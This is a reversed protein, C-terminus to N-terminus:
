INLSSAVDAKVTKHLDEIRISNTNPSTPKQPPLFVGLALHSGFVFEVWMHCLAPISGKSCYHSILAKVVRGNKSALLQRKLSQQQCYLSLTQTAM